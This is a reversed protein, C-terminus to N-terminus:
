SRAAKWAEYEPRRAKALPFLDDTSEGAAVRELAFEEVEEQAVAAAAVEAVLAHPIVVAGEADGVVIDGPQVFVGACTISDDVSYPMHHRGYTAAHSSQYYVPLEIATVAPTDRIAGDTVVGTGGLAKVRTAFIDGITGADPVGRAEMVVVDGPQVTEVAQKQATRGELALNKVDERLAVYRLTRARGVLRLEPHAPTLGSLFTSRLGRMQLQHTLTATSVASLQERIEDTLVDPIGAPDIMRPFESM